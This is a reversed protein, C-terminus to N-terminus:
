QDNKALIFISDGKDFETYDYLESITFYNSILKLLFERNYFKFLMGEMELDKDGLWFSHAFLGDKVIVSKQRLLSEELQALTLHHLVKNSFLCDYQKDSQITVADLKLFPIDTYRKRNRLLFEDSLDSGTAKYDNNLYAIDNGPGSGLELLSSGEKLHSSLVSYLESGDYEECAKEYEDVKEPDNYFNM